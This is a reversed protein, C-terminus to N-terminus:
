VRNKVVAAAGFVLASLVASITFDVGTLARSGLVDRLFPVSVALTQLLVTLVVAVLLSPNSAAGRWAGGGPGSGIALVHGMQSLTLTTFIMTQWAPNGSSWYAYGVGLSAAAIVGGVIGIYRRAERTFIAEDGRRPPRRMVDADPPALALAVAPLGDTVLNVWLIQLPLLPVPLGAIPSLLVVALEATNSAVVYRVFKVINDYIARGERIAAVITAFNDDLLVIDAAERAIDTGTRGMAIGIDARRIAPADNIGDGTMAVVHRRRQLAHVVRLKHEPSVRAYIDVSDVREVFADDSLADIERGTLVAGDSRLGVEAAVSRATLPHDGTIMVTRVGAQRAAAVAGRTDPRPPDLLGIMGIFTLEEEVGAPDVRPPLAPLARCAVGLVRMGREALEDAGARIRMRAQASLSQPGDAGVANACIGLLTDVAGKSIAMYRTSRGTGHMLGMSIPSAGVVRHITTMRKRQPDFPLETVRPMARELADKALGRRAAARVLAVETPDGTALDPRGSAHPEFLADTCLAAAALLLRTKDRYFAATSSPTAPRQIDAASDLEARVDTRCGGVDVVGVEMRGETLTGTKDTGAVTVAGLAEVATLRRILAKRRLLRQAGVALSITVVAPLGEPVAAVGLSLGTSLMLVPEEGRLLGGAFVVGALGFAALGLQRALAEMRRQLPTPGQPEASVMAAVRGFETASGTATVMGVGRGYAVVTGMFALNRRDGLPLDPDDLRHPIKEIPDPEGTLAAEQTRLHASEVIRLDAPVIDGAGLYVLDGPVLAGAPVTRLAGARRVRVRPASLKRLSILAREARHEQWAGLAANIVIIALIAAADHSDGIILSVLAAVILVLIATSTLQDRLIRLIGRANTVKLGNAGVEALRQTVQADDLGRTPDTDLMKAVAGADLIHWSPTETSM